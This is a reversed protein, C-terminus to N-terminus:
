IEKEYMDKLSLKGSIDYIYRSKEDVGIEKVPLIGKLQNFRLM